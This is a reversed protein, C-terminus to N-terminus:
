LDILHVNYIIFEGQSKGPYPPSATDMFSIDFPPIQIPQMSEPSVQSKVNTRKKSTTRKPQTVIKKPLKQPKSIKERIESLNLKIKEIERETVVISSSFSRNSMSLLSINALKIIELPCGNQKMTIKEYKTDFDYLAIWVNFAVPSIGIWDDGKTLTIRNLYPAFDMKFSEFKLLNMIATYEYRDCCCGILLHSKM